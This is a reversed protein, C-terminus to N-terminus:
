RLSLVSHLSQGNIDICVRRTAPGQGATRELQAAIRPGDCMGGMVLHGDLSLHLVGGHMHLGTVRLRSRGLANYYHSSREPEVPLMMLRKLSARLDKLTRPVRSGDVVLRDGCGVGHEKRADGLSILYVRLKGLQHGDPNSGGYAPTTWQAGVVALGILWAMVLVRRGRSAIPRPRDNVTQNMSM